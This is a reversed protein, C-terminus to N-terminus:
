EDPQDRHLAGPRHIKLEPPVQAERRDHKRKDRYTRLFDGIVYGFCLGTVCGIMWDATVQGTFGMSM